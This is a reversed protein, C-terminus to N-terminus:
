AELVAKIRRIGAAVAEEKVIRFRGLESTNAVHPGACIEKTFDGVAYVKVIDDYKGDFLGIAGGAKADEPSMLEMTVDYAMGIAGNVIGEVARLEEPGVKSPHSFDFRLREATINSGKQSVGEGLVKRLARQLLHTATHLRATADTKEALGSTFQGEASRRSLEQHSKYSEAFGAEDVGMGQEAALERTLEIPFGYTDYLRFAADGPITAGGSEACAAAVSAFEKEGRRLTRSFRAEEDRLTGVIAEANEILEPYLHSYGDIVKEAVKILGGEAMGISAAYRIGRRILRRVVYPAGTNGPSIGDAIAFTAARYHDAIVREAFEGRMSSNARIVGMIPAFLDSEYVHPVGQMLASVRELGLGTDINRNGLPECTGDERMDYQMFVDNWIEWYREPDEEPHVLPEDPKMDYFMETDPGCPGVNGPLGWWNHKKGLFFIREEPIGVSLWEEKTEDDRPIGGEGAFCTVVLRKPDLGLVATLFEYSYAVAEKKWYDGLSWNGLMEFFTLHIDDGVEDIDDTRLSKQCDVLRKGLPHPEGMLYPVLPQMGACVFLVSPDNEPALSASAIRKHGREVFFNIYAERIENSTMKDGARKKSGM